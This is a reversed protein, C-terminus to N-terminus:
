HGRIPQTLEAIGRLGLGAATCLLCPNRELINLYLFYPGVAPATLSLRSVGSAPPVSSRLRKLTRTLVWAGSGNAFPISKRQPEIRRRENGTNPLSPADFPRM